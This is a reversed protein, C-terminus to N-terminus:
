VELWTGDTGWGCGDRHKSVYGFKDVRNFAFMFKINVIKSSLNFNVEEFLFIIHMM